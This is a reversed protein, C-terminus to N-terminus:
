LKEVYKVIQNFANETIVHEINCANESAEKINLNLVKEFFKQLIQHKSVIMEASKIGSETLSIKGYYGYNVYGKKELKKLAESVSARSVNLEKSIDIAKIGNDAKFKNYIIELYDELSSSLKEM